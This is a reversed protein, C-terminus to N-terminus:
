RGGAGIPPSDFWASLMENTEDQMGGPGARSDPIAPPTNMGHYPRLVVEPEPDPKPEPPPPRPSRKRHVQRIPKLNTVMRVLGGIDNKMSSIKNQQMYMKVLFFIFIGALAFFMWNRALFGLM